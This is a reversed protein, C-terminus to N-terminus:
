ASGIEPCGPQQSVPLNAVYRLLALADVADVGGSCDVDGMLPDGSGIPTACGSTVSLLAVSRLVKLADVANVSGDCDVDGFGGSTGAGCDLRLDLDTVPPPIEMVDSEVFAQAPDGPANCGAKEARVKYYGAIVDWGFHGDADTTDPNARNSPSMVASGDPVAEFPGDALDSRYLTVTAGAIPDGGVTKVYGSPDIYVDFDVDEKSGDPCFIDVEVRAPGHYPSLPPITGSYTGSSTETMSGSALVAGTSTVVKYSATGGDCGAVSFPTNRDWALVPVGSISGIGAITVGPPPAVALKMIMDGVDRSEGPALTIAVDAPLLDTRGSPPYAILHYDGPPLDTVVFEGLANTTSNPCPPISCVTVLAGELPMLAEPDQSDPPPGLVYGSVRGQTATFSGGKIVEVLPISGYTSYRNRSCIVLSSIPTTTNITFTQPASPFLFSGNTIDGEGTTGLLNSSSDYASIQWAPTSGGGSVGIRTVGFSTLSGGGTYSMTTCTLTDYQAYTHTPGNFAGFQTDGPPLVQNAGSTYIDLEGAGGAVDAPLGLNSPNPMITFGFAQLAGSQNGTPLSSFNLTASDAIGHPPFTFYAGLLLLLSVGITLGRPFPSVCCRM